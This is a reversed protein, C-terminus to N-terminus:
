LILLSFLMSVFMYHPCGRRRQDHRPSPGYIVGGTSRILDEHNFNWGYEIDVMTVSSSKGGPHQWAHHADVGDPASGLYGQKCSFDPTDQIALSREASRTEMIPPSFVVPSKIRQQIDAWVIDTENLLHELLKDAENRDEIFVHGYAAFDMVPESELSEVISLSEARLPLPEPAFVPAAEQVLNISSFLRARPFPAALNLVQEGGILASNVRWVIRFM